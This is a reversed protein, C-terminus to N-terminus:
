RYYGMSIEEREKKSIGKEMEQGMREYVRATEEDMSPHVSKKAEEFHKMSVKKAKRNERLASLAAERCLGEIDAGTYGEIEKALENISVDDDLPMAKTHVKLIELRTREDPVPVLLLKDFRGARLLAPDVMDPRNTAAIVLVGERSELGDMSTLLQNVVRETVGSDGEGGGRRHAIADIEDLFVICPAVQRAKKFIMRVAKESEGVWKSMVEPGKISIFNSESETAVAKAILTKGTGPAGYLLIGRPPTIGMRKFSEPDKLPMEVAEKLKAKLDELGGVDDWTTHPIEVLVERMASPEVEKLAEKFDGPTVRMKELIESPIPKDLDIEPLYRRLTRMAAERALAAMDAGVFGHTVNALETLLNERDEENGEIPMGRSHIQLIEKRGIRDPVGIEIERDFRGGRRLAPDIAEERNTAAIVIVQGRDSLGDMLTLLQAVVRREVEGTVEERRPAISDLEDIFLVSPANKQAEDFKERLREESQGYYKSMIEPGQISYFNAGAENAVAKAILTKGTGPPGYLLVGKPPNIGLREFLEAHKLPLEIMERVKLLEEKLGGIDEYTIATTLVEGERVPEEKMEIITEDNIQVVGKPTTKVVMFPLAGGMLAIGPVIVVDGKMLPRKLLGRKAFNEIGQGFSIRHGESIIPAITVREATLVEAKKAEVRDGISCGVNRRVLGDIRIIGKGEDEQMVRFIKASTSKKGIIEVIEGVDLGLAMRTKTDVRARGLGVDSQPAEAVKLVVKETV